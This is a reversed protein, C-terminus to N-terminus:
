ENRNKNRRTINNGQKEEEKGEQIVHILQFVLIKNSVFGSLTTKNTSFGEWNFKAVLCFGGM